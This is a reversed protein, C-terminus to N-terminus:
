DLYLIMEIEQVSLAEMGLQKFTKNGQLVVDEISPKNILNDYNGTEVVQTSGFGSNFTANGSFRANFTANGNFKANFDAM